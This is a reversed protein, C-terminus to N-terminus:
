HNRFWTDTFVFQQYGLGPSSGFDVPATFSGEEGDIERLEMGRPAYGVVAVTHRGVSDLCAWARGGGHGNRGAPPLMPLPGFAGVLEVEAGDLFVRAYRTSRNVIELAFPGSSCGRIPRHLSAVNPPPGLMPDGAGYVGGPPPMSPGAYSHDPHVMPHADMPRAVTRGTAGCGILALATLAVATIMVNKMPNEEKM